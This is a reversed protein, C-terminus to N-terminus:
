KKLAVFIEGNFTKPKDDSLCSIPCVTPAVDRRLQVGTLLARKRGSVALYIIVRKGYHRHFNGAIECIQFAHTNKTDFGYMMGAGILVSTYFFPKLIFFPGVAANFDTRYSCTEM